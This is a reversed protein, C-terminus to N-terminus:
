SDKPPDKEKPPMPPMPPAPPPPRFGKLREGTTRADPRLSGIVLGLNARMAPDVTPDNFQDQVGKLMPASLVPGHQQVHKVLEAAAASRLALPRKPDLMFNALETQPKAGPLRGAVEIAAAQAAESMQGDRLVKFVTDAAPRVDYGPKEGKALRALWLMSKEAYAKLEAESVPQGMAQAMFEPLVKKLGDADVGLVAPAFWVNPYREYARRLADERERPALVIVPLLGGHVDARVDGLFHALQPDAVAADVLIAEIDAAENLRRMAERGTRVRIPEFGAKQLAGSIERLVDEDFHVALVKPAPPTGPDAAVARRLVEVVRSTSVSSPRVPLRLITDAAAMQVRRDPYLLARVLAPEGRTTPLGSRADALEGLARIAGVIVPLRREALARELISNILDPNVTSLLANVEPAAKALSQDLGARQVGRELALTLFVVQAPPYTPDLELAQGAFRLGYYEEARAAPVTEHGPWGKVLKKDQWRWVTVQEPLPVKHQVYREAERTLAFKAPMLRDPHTDTFYGLTERAAKRVAEPRGPAATLYWLSPAIAAAQRAQAAGRKRLVRVLDLVLANDEADLAALLPPVTDPGLKELAEVLNAREAGTADKLTDILYPVAAAGSRYLEKIAYDKEEPSKQLNAVYKEIRKPDNLLKRLADSVMQILDDVDKRAQQEVEKNPSWRVVNRLRLFGSMGEKDQIELLSADDPKLELLGRLHKAALDYKGVEIEFQIGRWFDAATEPKKFFQRYDEPGAEKKGGVEVQARAPALLAAAVLFGFFLRLAHRTM